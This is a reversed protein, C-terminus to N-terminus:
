SNGSSRALRRESPSMRRGMPAGLRQESSPSADFDAYLDDFLLSAQALLADDDRIRERMGRLISELVTAEAVPLGGVDLFHVIPALKRLGADKELGFSYLLVEFTVKDEVHSFTAGDFDFGLVGAPQRAPRKVWRIEARPDIFREILWASALRDIWPRARTVWTRGTFERRDLARIRGHAAHPEGPTSARETLVRLEDLARRAEVQATGPFFDRSVIAEFERRLRESERLALAPPTANLALAAASMREILSDYEDRRDFLATFDADGDSVELLRAMGGSAVVEAACSALADRAGLRTPLVYVGDRLVAAGSSKLSRWIRMRFAPQRGPLTLVLLLWPSAAESRRTGRM